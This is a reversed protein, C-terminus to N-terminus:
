CHTFDLKHLQFRECINKQVTHESLLTNVLMQVFWFVALFCYHINIWMINVFLLVVVTHFFFVYVMFNILYWIRWYALLDLDHQMDSPAFWQLISKIKLMIMEMLLEEATQELFPPPCLHATMCDLRRLAWCTKDFCQSFRYRHQIAYCRDSCLCDWLLSLRLNVRRWFM